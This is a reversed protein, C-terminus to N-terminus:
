EYEIPVTSDEMVFKISRYIM